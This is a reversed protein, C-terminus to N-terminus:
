RWELLEDLLAQSSAACITRRHRHEMTVLERGQVDAAVGGAEQLVLLAGLYDWVGHGDVDLSVYGDLSGAAVLCLELAASGLMRAQRPGGPPLSTGNIALISNALPPSAGVSIPAGNLTAGSGRVARYQDGNALNAVTSIWPGVEDVVCISCAYFPVGRAANTSGDVPDIVAIHTNSQNHSSTFGSEESLVSLGAEVLGAVAVSDARADLRYSGSLQHLEEPQRSVLTAQVVEVTEELLRLIDDVHVASLRTAGRRDVVDSRDPYEGLCHPECFGRWGPLSVSHCNNICCSEDRVQFIVCSIVSEMDVVFPVEYLGIGHALGPLDVKVWLFGATAWEIEMQGKLDIWSGQEGEFIDHQFKGFTCFGGINEVQRQVEGPRHRWEGM